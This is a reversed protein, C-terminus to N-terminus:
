SCFRLVIETKANKLTSPKKKTVCSQFVMSMQNIYWLIYIIEIFLM